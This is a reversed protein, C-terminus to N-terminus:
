RLAHGAAVVLYRLGLAIVAFTAALVPFVAVLVALGVPLHRMAPALLPEALGPLAWALAFCLAAGRGTKPTLREFRVVLWLGTLASGVAVLM